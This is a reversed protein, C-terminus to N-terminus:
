ASPVGALCARVIRAQTAHMRARDSPSRDDFGNLHLLGHVTYLGLEEEVSHNFQEACARATDASIVIEGHQFTIVDTAGHVNMFQRHVASIVRDSVVTVDVEALERLAARKIRSQGLTELLAFEAVRRLWRLDFKVRRQRNEVHIIPRGV